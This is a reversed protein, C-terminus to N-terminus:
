RAVGGVSLGKKEAVARLGNIRRRSLGTKKFIEYDTTKSSNLAEAIVAVARKGYAALDVVGPEPGEENGGGGKPKLTDLFDPTGFGKSFAAYYQREGYGMELARVLAASVSTKFINSIVKASEVADDYSGFTLHKQEVIALFKDRPILLSAAFRNCFREVENDSRYNDSIASRKGLIHALEHALTFTKAGHNRKSSNVFILNSTFNKHYMAFGDIDTPFNHNQVVFVGLDEIKERFSKYFENKTKAEQRLNEISILKAITAAFQEPNEDPQESLLMDPAAIDLRSYLDALFDRLSFLDEFKSAALGYKFPKPKKARFDIIEPDKVEFKEMFFAYAPVALLDAIRFIQNKTPVREGRQAESFRDKSIKLASSLSDASVGRSDLLKNLVAPNFPM